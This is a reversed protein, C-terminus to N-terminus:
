LPFGMFKFALAAGAIVVLVGWWFCSMVDIRTGQAGHIGVVLYLVSLAAIGATVRWGVVPFGHVALVACGVLVFAGATARTRNRQPLPIARLAHLDAFVANAITALVLLGFVVFIITMM